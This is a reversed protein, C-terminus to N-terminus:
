QVEEDPEEVLPGVDGRLEAEWMERDRNFEADTQYRPGRARRARRGRKEPAMNYFLQPPSELDLDEMAEIRKRLEAFNQNFWGQPDKKSFDDKEEIFDVIVDIGLETRCKATFQDYAAVSFQNNRNKYAAVKRLQRSLHCRVFPRDRFSKM